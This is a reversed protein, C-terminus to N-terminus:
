LYTQQAPVTGLADKGGSVTVVLPTGYNAMTLESAIQLRKIAMGEPDAAAPMTVIGWENSSM